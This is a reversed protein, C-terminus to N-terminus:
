CYLVSYRNWSLGCQYEASHHYCHAWSHMDIGERPPGTLANFELLRQFEQESKPEFCPVKKSCLGLPTQGWPQIKLICMLVQARVCDYGSAAMCRAITCIYFSAYSSSYHLWPRLQMCCRPDGSESSIQWFWHFNRNLVTWGLPRGWCKICGVGTAKEDPEYLCHPLCNPSVQDLKLPIEIVCQNWIIVVICILLLM